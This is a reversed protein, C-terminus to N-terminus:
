GICERKRLQFVTSRSVGLEEAIKMDSRGLRKQQALWRVDIHIKKTPGNRPRVAGSARNIGYRYRTNLVMSKPVGLEAAIAADTRGLVKQERLWDPDIYSDKPLELPRDGFGFIIEKDM